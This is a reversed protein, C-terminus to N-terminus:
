VLYTHSGYVKVVALRMKGLASRAVLKHNYFFKAKTSPSQKNAVFLTVMKKIEKFRKSSLKKQTPKIRFCHYQRKASVAGYLKDISHSKARNYITSLVLHAATLDTNDECYVVWVVDNLKQEQTKAFANQGLVMLLAAIISIFIRNM